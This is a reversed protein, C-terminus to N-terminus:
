PGACRCICTVVRTIDALLSWMPPHLGYEPMNDYIEDVEGGTEYDEDYTEADEEYLARERKVKGDREALAEAPFRTLLTKYTKAFKFSTKM